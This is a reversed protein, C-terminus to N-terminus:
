QSLGFYNSRIIWDSLLKIKEIPYEKYKVNLLTHGLGRWESRVGYIDLLTTYVDLQNCPGTWFNNKDIGGNIIFLPLEDSVEKEDMNLHVPLAQHDSTIVIVSNDYLGHQKLANIYREIQADTYHCDILYNLYEESYQKDAIEFGHEVFKNYPNHMSMTVILSFFPQETTTEAQLAMTFVQEDNLDKHSHMAENCNFKSYMKEIGYLSNMKDQEWFTPSTPVIIHSHKLRGVKMLTAPLGYFAKERAINVTLESKLPLLGAMYVFQGDSSMGMEINPRMHGNYCVTSDRKLRNLFPTIEKGGIKLDSTASLYSEVIIFILNKEGKVTPVTTSREKYDTYECKIEAKQNEDLELNKQIFDDYCVLARRLFGSRFLMNNPAQTYQVKIPFFRTISIEFDHDHLFGLILVVAMVCTLIAGWLWGITKLWQAKLKEKDSNVYLWGFVAAMLIYYLDMWRFGTLTSGIVDSDNMNGIELIALNPLYHDFFRSYLVNCFSLLATLVFTLLLAGKKRGRTFLLSLFFFFTVDILCSFVNSLIADTKFPYEYEMTLAMQGHMFLLNVVSFGFLLLFRMNLHKWVKKVIDNM